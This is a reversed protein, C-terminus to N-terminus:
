YREELLTHHSPEGNPVFFANTRLRTTENQPTKDCLQVAVWQGPMCKKAYRLARPDKLCCQSIFVSSKQKPLVLGLSGIFAFQVSCTIYHFTIVPRNSLIKLVKLQKQYEIELYECERRRETRLKPRYIIYHKGCM